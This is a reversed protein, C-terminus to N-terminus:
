CPMRAHQVHERVQEIEKTPFAVRTTESEDVSVSKLLCFRDSCVLGSGYQIHALGLVYGYLQNHVTVSTQAAALAVAAAFLLAPVKVM